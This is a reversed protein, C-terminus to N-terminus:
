EIEENEELEKLLRERTEYIFQAKKCCIEKLYDDSIEKPRKDTGFLDEYLPINYDFAQAVFSIDDKIIYDLLYTAIM